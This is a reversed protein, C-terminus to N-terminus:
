LHALFANIRILTYLDMTIWAIVNAFISHDIKVVAAAVAVVGIVVDMGHWCTVCYKQAEFFPIVLDLFREFPVEVDRRVWGLVDIEIDIVAEDM